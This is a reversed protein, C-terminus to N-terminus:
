PPYTLSFLAVNCKRYQYLWLMMMFKLRGWYIEPPAVYIYMCAHTYAYVCKILHMYLLYYKLANQLHM